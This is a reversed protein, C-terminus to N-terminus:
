HDDLRFWRRLKQGFTETPSRYGFGTECTKHTAVGGSDFVVYIRINDAQWAHASHHIYRTMMTGGLGIENQLDIPRFHPPCGMLKSVDRMTMGVQIKAYNEPNIGSTPTMGWAIALFGSVALAILLGLRVFLSKSMNSMAKCDWSSM